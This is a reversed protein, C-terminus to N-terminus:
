DLHGNSGPRYQTCTTSYSICYLVIGCVSMFLICWQRLKLQHLLLDILTWWRWRPGSYNSGSRLISQFRPANEQSSKSQKIHGNSILKKMSLLQIGSGIRYTGTSRSWPIFDFHSLVTCGRFREM